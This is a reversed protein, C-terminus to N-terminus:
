SIGCSEPRPAWREGVGSDQEKKQDEASELEQRALAREIEEAFVDGIEFQAFGKEGAMPIGVVADGFGHLGGSQGEEQSKQDAKEVGLM